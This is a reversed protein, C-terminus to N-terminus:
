AMEDNWESYPYSSLWSNYFRQDYTVEQLIWDPKQFEQEESDLEIEAMVLGSNKGSFVDVEWLNGDFNVHYRTKEVPDSIALNLMEVAEDVPIEYEFEPRALSNSRGKITLFAREGAIRIRVTPNPNIGLYAQVIRVGEDIPTWRTTDVLFKREIELPM